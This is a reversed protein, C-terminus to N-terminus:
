CFFSGSPVCRCSPLNGICTDTWGPMCVFQRSAQGIWGHMWVRWQDANNPRSLCLYWVRDCRAQGYVFQQVVRSSNNPLQLMRRDDHACSSIYGLMGLWRDGRVSGNRREVLYELSMCVHKGDVRHAWGYVRVRHGVLDIRWPLRLEVIWCEVRTWRHVPVSWQCRASARSYVRVYGIGGCIAQRVCVHMPWRYQAYSRGLLHVQKDGCEVCLRSEYPMPMCKGNCEVSSRGHVRLLRIYPARVQLSGQSRPLWKSQRCQCLQV